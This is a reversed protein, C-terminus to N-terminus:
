MYFKKSSLIFKLYVYSFSIIFKPNKRLNKQSDPGQNETMVNYIQNSHSKVEKMRGNNLYYAM